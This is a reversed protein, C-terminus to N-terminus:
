DKLFLRLGNLNERIEEVVLDCVKFAGYASLHTDDTIKEKLNEYEFPEIHLFLSKSKEEGFSGVMVKTKQHLDLLPVQKEKAVERVVLPYAGHTEVLKGDADFRRRVIPTALVPIAEKGRVDAIFRQLTKRYDTQAAAYRSPDEKKSDNHGFEIFVYDGAKLRSMVADWRGEDIFSKTSRGNVAHNEIKVGEKFYLPFVQGWGKEPNGDKYPKDAVTSNGILFITIEKGEEKLGQAFVSVPVMCLLILFLKKM